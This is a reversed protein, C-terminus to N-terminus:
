ELTMTASKMVDLCCLNWARAQAEIAAHREEFHRIRYRVLRRGIRRERADRELREVDNYLRQLRARIVSMQLPVTLDSM